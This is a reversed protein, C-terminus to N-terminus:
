ERDLEETPILTAFPRYLLEFEAPSLRDRVLLALMALTTVYQGSPESANVRAGPEEPTFWPVSRFLQAIHELLVEQEAARASDIVAQAVADEAAFWDRGVASHWAQVAVGLQELELQAIRGLFKAAALANDRARENEAVEALVAAPLSARADAPRPADTERHSEQLERNM